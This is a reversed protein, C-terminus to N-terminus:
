SISFSEATKTETTIVININDKIQCTLLDYNCFIIDLQGM